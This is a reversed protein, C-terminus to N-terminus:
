KIGIIEMIEIINFLKVSKKAYIRNNRNAGYIQYYKPLIESFENEKTTNLKLNTKEVRKKAM